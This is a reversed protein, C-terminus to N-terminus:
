GNKNAACFVGVGPPSPAPSRFKFAQTFSSELVTQNGQQAKAMGVVCFLCLLVSLVGVCENARLARFRM